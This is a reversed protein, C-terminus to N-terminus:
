DYRLAVLPDVSTARRAPLYSATIAVASLVAAAAAFSRPDTPSVGYLSTRLLRVVALSVGAGIVLGFVGVAAAERLAVLLVRSRSAGLAARIGIERTREAVSFAVVGYLGVAAMALGLTTLVAFVITQVRPQATADSMMSDLTRISSVVIAPDAAAIERRISSLLATPDTATRAVLFPAIWPQQAFPRYVADEAPATLGAYKVNSIVGVLTMDISNLGTGSWTARPLQMTRGIVDGPGFFRRATDESMIMVDPHSADDADTFLRGQVLRIRLAAFYGPSVPVAAAAYDVNDGKLKLSIQLRSTQPPLSTGVGVTQVGSIRGIRVLLQQTRRAVEEESPSQGLAFNMSATVVHDTAVGLDINMLGVFSQGLLAVAVLLVFAVVWEATCLVLRIRQHSRNSSVGTVLRKENASWGAAVGPAIGAAFASFVMAATAFLLTPIDLRATELNPVVAAGREAALAVLGRALLIGALAGIVAICASEILAQGLLRQRSAGLSSRIALERARSANRALMLNSLNICAVCLILTVAAFLVSMVRAAPGKIQNSLTVVHAHLRGDARPQGRAISEVEANIREVSAGPRSRAIMQFGFDRPDFTRVFRASLWANTIEEPFKFDRAAVGVITFARSNLTLAQGVAGAATGFLRTAIRESIVCTPTADDEVTLPRGAVFRGAMTEFFEASVLADDFQERGESTSLSHAARIYLAPREFTKANKWADFEGLRVATPLPRRTGAVATEARLLVLRDPDQFPLPRLVVAYLVSFMAVNAGIGLALTVIATLTFAPTRILTRVAYRFDLRVADVVSM